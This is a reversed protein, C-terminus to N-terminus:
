KGGEYVATGGGTEVSGELVPLGCHTTSVTPIPQTQHNKSRKELRFSEICKALRLWGRHLRM